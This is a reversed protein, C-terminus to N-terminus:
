QFYCNITLKGMLFPSKGMTQQINVLPYRTSLHCREALSTHFPGQFEASPKTPAAALIRSPGARAVSKTKACGWVIFILFVDLSILTPKWILLNIYCVKISCHQLVYLIM